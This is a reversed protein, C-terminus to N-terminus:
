AAEKGTRDHEFTKKFGVNAATHYLVIGEPNMYGPSAYSGRERLNSMVDDTTISCPEALTCILPVVWCCRPAEVATDLEVNSYREHIMYAKKWRAVNFLSFWREPQNYGRQIGSGWWEGFHRGPGLTLLEDKNDRCWAAFGFNDAEPTLWRKRSGAFLQGDETIYVQANTGDIKETVLVERSLRPLKPFGQFEPGEPDRHVGHRDLRLSRMADTM